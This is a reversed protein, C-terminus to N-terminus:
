APNIDDRTDCFTAALTPLIDKANDSDRNAHHRRCHIVHKYKFQECRSQDFVRSCMSSSTTLYKSPLPPISAQLLGQAFRVLITTDM